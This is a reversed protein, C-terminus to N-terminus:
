GFLILVMFRADDSESADRGSVAAKAGGRPLAATLFMRFASATTVARGDGSLGM